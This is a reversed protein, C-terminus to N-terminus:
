NETNDKMPQITPFINHPKKKPPHSPHLPTKFWTIEEQGM